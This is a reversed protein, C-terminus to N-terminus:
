LEGPVWWSLSLFTCYSAYYIQFVKCKTEQWPLNRLKQQQRNTKNNKEDISQRM